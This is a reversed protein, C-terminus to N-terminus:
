PRVATIVRTETAIYLNKGIVRVDKANGNVQQSGLIVPASKNTVDIFTLGPGGADAVVIENPGSVAISRPKGPTTLTATVVPNLPNSMDVIALNATANFSIVYLWTGDLTGYIGNFNPIDFVKPRTITSAISSVDFVAIDGTV